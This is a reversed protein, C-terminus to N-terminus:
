REEKKIKRIVMKHLRRNQKKTAASWAAARATDWAAARTAARATDWAAARAAARLQENGTQLYEKVINPADWLHIVDLACLRSFKRLTEDIDIGGAVYTRHSCAYKDIPNGHPIVTGHGKVRYIITGNAYKLADLINRSLHLGKECPIIKGKIEHTIGIKIKRNDGHPLKHDKTFWWGTVSKM